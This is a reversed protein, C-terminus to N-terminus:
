KKKSGNQLAISTMTSDLEAVKQKLEEIGTNSKDKNLYKKFSYAALATFMLYPNLSCISVLVSLNTLSLNNDHEDVLKIHILFEKFKM